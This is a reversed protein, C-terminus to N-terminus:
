IVRRVRVRSREPTELTAKLTIPKKDRTVSLIVEAAAGADDAEAASAIQRRLDAADTVPKGNIATIVDGAKVGAKAAASDQDVDRVLVGEDVGFYKALQGSVADASVGLRTRGGWIMPVDGGDWDFELSPVAFRELKKRRIEDRVNDRIEDQLRGFDLDRKFTFNDSDLGRLRPSAHAFSSVEPTVTVDLKASDRVISIKVDRGSPTEQVLRTLQRASRVREGDFAIVVDGAKLGARAAPTESDVYEIVAGAQQDGLKQKTVDSPEVDRVRAGIRSDGAGVGALMALAKAEQGPGDGQGQGALVVTRRDKKSRAETQGHLEPALTFMGGVAALAVVAGAAIMRNRSNTNM